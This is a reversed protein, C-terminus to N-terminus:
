YSVGSEFDLYPAIRILFEESLARVKRLDDINRFSGHENRYAVLINAQKWRIYPHSKLLEADASNIPLLQNLPSQRLQSRISQFTSDPLGYTEKVQEVNVFGGLKDRFKVIRQSYSPGIGYLQQWEEATAQNIDIALKTVTEYSIPVAKPKDSQVNTGAILDTKSSLDSNGIQIYPQLREYDKASFGYIKKLDEPKQFRGGKARFNILTHSVRKSLGLQQLETSTVSNPDFTFLQVQQKKISTAQKKTTKQISRIHVYPLLRQYDAPALNYIKSLDSAQKFQGGKSRYNIITRITAQPLGLSALENEHITNPDFIFLSVVKEQKANDAQAAEFTLIAEQFLAIDAETQQKPLFRYFPPLLFLVVVILLLLVTAKREKRTYYWFDSKKNKM